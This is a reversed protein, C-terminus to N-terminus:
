GTEGHRRAAHGRAHRQIDTAALNERRGAKVSAKANQEMELEEAHDRSYGSFFDVSASSEYADGAGVDREIELQLRSVKKRLQHALTVRRKFDPVLRFFEQFWRGGLVLMKAPGLTRATAMRPKGDILAMEGFFCGGNRESSGLGDARLVALTMTGKQMAVSGSVLIYLADGPDGEEFVAKGGEPVELLEFMPVAAQLTATPVGRLMHLSRIEREVFSGFIRSALSAAGEDPLGVTAEVPFQLLLSDELAVVTSLRRMGTLAELGICLKGAEEESDTVDVGGIQLPTRSPDLHRQEVRGNLLVYFANATAGERYMTGYRPLWREVGAAAIKQLEADGLEHFSPAARLAMLTRQNLDIRKALEALDNLLGDVGRTVHRVIGQRRSCAQWGRLEPKSGVSSRRRTRLYETQQLSSRSARTHIPLQAARPALAQEEAEGEQGQAALQAWEDSGPQESGAADSTTRGAASCGTSARLSHSSAARLPRAELLQPASTSTSLAEATCRKAPERIAKSAPSVHLPRATAVPRFRTVASSRPQLGPVDHRHPLWTTESTLTGAKVTSALVAASATAPRGDQSASIDEWSALGSGMPSTIPRGNRPASPLPRSSGLPNQVVPPLGTAHREVVMVGQNSYAAEQERHSSTWDDCELHPLAVSPYSANCGRTPSSMPRGDYQDPLARRWNAVTSPIPPYRDNSSIPTQLLGDLQWVLVRAAASFHVLSQTRRAGDHSGGSRRTKQKLAQRRLESEVLRRVIIEEGERPHEPDDHNACKASM